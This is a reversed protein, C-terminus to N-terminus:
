LKNAFKIFLKGLIDYNISVFLEFDMKTSSQSYCKRRRKM